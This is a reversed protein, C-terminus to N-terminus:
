TQVDEPMDTDGCLSVHTMGDCSSLDYTEVRIFCVDELACGFAFICWLIGSFVMLESILWCEFLPSMSM